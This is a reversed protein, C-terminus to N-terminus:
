IKRLYQFVFDGVYEPLHKAKLQRKNFNKELTSKVVYGTAVALQIQLRLNMRRTWHSSGVTLPDILGNRGVFNTSRCTGSIKTQQPPQYLQMAVNAIMRFDHMQGEELYM